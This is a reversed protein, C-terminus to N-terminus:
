QSEFYLRELDDVMEATTRQPGIHRRFRALMDRDKQIRQLQSALDADDNLEFLLGNVEHHILESMGGLNTAILPTATSLASQIVLPTNEYWRSPVVLVDIDTLVPGLQENPFTGAFEIFRRRSPVSDALEEITKFYSPFQTPSGYIKLIAPPEEELRQFAKILIDLGKHEYITGIFGIRLAESRSKERYPTLLSTDIGFPVHHILEEKFGNKIFLEKMIRTPVTIADATNGISRLVEPRAITAAAAPGQKRRTYLGYLPDSKLVARANPWGRAAPFRELLAEALQDRSAILEPTYCTLCPEAGPGPGECITGDKRKLQVIPCIFWFDTPSLVIRVGKEKAAEIVSASLNQAHMVHVVDPQFSELVTKFHRGIQPHRYEHEFTYGELRLTETIVHVNLGEYEYDRTPPGQKHRADEDPPDATVILVEHGRETLERAIKLTLVETGARHEPFFKHVTILIRAM